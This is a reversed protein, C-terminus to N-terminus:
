KSGFIEKHRKYVDEAPVITLEKASTEIRLEKFREIAEEVNNASVSCIGEKYKIVYRKMNIEM